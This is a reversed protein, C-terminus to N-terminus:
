QKPREETPLWGLLVDTPGGILLLVERGDCRAILIRRRADVAIVDKVEIRRSKRGGAPMGFRQVSWLLLPILVLAAAIAAHLWGPQAFQPLTSLM